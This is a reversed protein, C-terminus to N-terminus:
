IKRVQFFFFRVRKFLQFNAFTVIAYIHLGPLIAVILICYDKRYIPGITFLNKSTRYLFLYRKNQYLYSLYIGSLVVFRKSRFLFIIWKWCYIPGQHMFKCRDTGATAWKCALQAFNLPLSNARMYRLPMRLLQSYKVTLYNWCQNKDNNSIQDVSRSEIKNKFLVFFFQHPSETTIM